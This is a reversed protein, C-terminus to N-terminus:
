PSNDNGQSNITGHRLSSDNEDYGDDARRRRLKDVVQNYHAIVQRRGLLGLFKRNGSEDEAVVPLEELNKITFRRMASSLTDSERLIIIDKTAIDDAVAVMGLADDYLFSRLDNMNFIGCLNGMNDVVPYVTQHSITVLQKCDDLSSNPNLIGIERDPDFVAKVRIGSLLDNFFHGSHAPSHLPSPVQTAVVSKKGSALFCLSCVWMAPLLLQYTGTLESVMLLGAIPTRYASAFFGAMAIIVCSGPSPAIELGSLAVGVAGGTCGAIVMSPGFKGASGGSSITFSSCLIKGLAILLLLGATSWKVTPSMETPTLLAEQIAGYGHGLINLVSDHSISAIHEPPILSAVEYLLLGIAGAIAAGIAPKIIISIKLRQFLKEIQYAVVVYFRVTVIITLALIGYGILEAANGITFAFEEPTAFLNNFANESMAPYVLSEILGFIVFGVISSIFSPIIVDAELESEAYLVEAAFIAGALPARFLAAVGAGISAALLIRRDRGSLRFRSAVNAALGSGIMSIPGEKGGSGGTALTITTAIFKWVPVLLPIRGRQNHYANIATNTGAGAADPCIRLILGTLFGGATIILMFLWPNLEDATPIIHLHQEGAAASPEYGAIGRLLFGSSVDICLYLLFSALGSILGICSGLLLWKLTGTRLLKHSIKMFWHAM